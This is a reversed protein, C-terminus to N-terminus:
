GFPEKKKENQITKRMLRDVNVAPGFGQSWREDCSLAMELGGGLAYGNIAAIIPKRILRISNCYDERNRFAWADQFEDLQKIDTGACFAREGEGIIIVCRIDDNTNCKSTVIELERAMERSVANLSQPRNFKITAVYGDLTFDIIGVSNVNTM